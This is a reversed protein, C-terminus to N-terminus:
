SIELMYTYISVEINADIRWQGPSPEDSLLFEECKFEIRNTTIFYIYYIYNYM